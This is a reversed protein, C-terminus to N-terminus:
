ATSAEPAAEPRAIKTGPWLAPAVRAYQPPYDLKVGFREAAHWLWRPNDLLARALAIMDAQGSALIDEAHQPDVIMGGVRTAIGAEKKVRAAFPVNYGPEVKMKQQPVVSASSVCVFDFGINKLERALVAADAPGLGGEAWDSGSIRAGLARDKPWTDRLARAVELPFKMRDTGYADKRLNALPSCFEHLLYGHAMHLEVVDFGIEKARETSKAFADKLSVMESVTLEHPVQWGEGFPVASPAEARWPSDKPGLSRSGEWPRLASGKRGAHALQIGFPSRTLRRCYDVVRKMAAQNNDSYLGTCGHTIRGERTVGTAEVVVLGAGSIAMSALNALHWETMSGDDASYQCMPSVVLRNPLTIGGLRIPTFLHPTM